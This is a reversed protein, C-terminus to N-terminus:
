ARPVPGQERLFHALRNSRSNLEQYSIQEPGLTLAPAHPTREVQDEIYEQPDRGLSPAITRAMRLTLEGDDM